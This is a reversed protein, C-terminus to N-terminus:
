VFLFSIKQIIGVEWGENGVFSNCWYACINIRLTFLSRNNIIIGEDDCAASMGITGGTYLVLIHTEAEHRYANNVPHRDTGTYKTEGQQNADSVARM